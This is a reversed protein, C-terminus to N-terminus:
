GLFRPGTSPDAPLVLPPMEVPAPVPARLVGRAIAIPLRAEDLPELRARELRARLWTFGLKCTGFVVFGVVMWPQTAIASGAEAVYAATAGVALGGSLPNELRECIAIQRELNWLAQM